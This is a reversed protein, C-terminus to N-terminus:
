ALSIWLDINLHIRVTAPLQEDATDEQASDVLDADMNGDDYVWAGMERLMESVPQLKVKVVAAIEHPLM